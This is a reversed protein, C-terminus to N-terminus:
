LENSNVRKMYEIASEGKIFGLPECNNIFIYNDDVLPCPEKSYEHYCESETLDCRNWLYSSHHFRCNCCKM